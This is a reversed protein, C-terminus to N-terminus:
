RNVGAVSSGTTQTCGGLALSLTVAAAAASLKWFRRM